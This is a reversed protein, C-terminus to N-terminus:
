EFCYMPYVFDNNTKQKKLFFFIIFLPKVKTMLVDVQIRPDLEEDKYQDEDEEDDRVTIGGTEVCGAESAPGNSSVVASHKREEEAEVGPTEGRWDGAESEGSGPPNERLRGPEM